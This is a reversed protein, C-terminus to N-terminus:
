LERNEQLMKAAKRAAASLQAGTQWDLMSHFIDDRM